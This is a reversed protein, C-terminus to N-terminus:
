GHCGVESFTNNMKPFMIELWSVLTEDGSYEVMGSEYLYAHIIEHRLVESAYKELNAVTDPEAELTRLIIEKTSCDTYGDHEYLKPDDMRCREIVTYATDLIKITKM